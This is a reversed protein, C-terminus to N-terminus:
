AKGSKILAEVWALGKDDFEGPTKLTLKKIEALLDIEVVASVKLKLEPTVDVIVSGYEGIKQELENGELM